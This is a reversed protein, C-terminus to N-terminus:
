EKMEFWGGVETLISFVKIDNGFYRYETVVVSFCTVFM